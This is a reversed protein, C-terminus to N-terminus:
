KMLETDIDEIKNALALAMNLELHPFMQKRSWKDLSFVMADYSPYMDYVDYLNHAWSARERLEPLMDDTWEGKMFLINANKEERNLYENGLAGIYRVVWRRHKSVVNVRIYLLIALVSLSSLLSTIFIM